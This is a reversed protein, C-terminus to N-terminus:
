TKNKDISKASPAKRPRITKADAPLLATPCRVQGGLTQQLPKLGDPVRQLALDM